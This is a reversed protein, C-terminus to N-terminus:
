ASSAQKDRESPLGPTGALSNTHSFVGQFCHGPNSHLNLLFRSCVPCLHFAPPRPSDAAAAASVAAVRWSGCGAGTCFLSDVPQLNLASASSTKVRPPEQSALSPKSVPLNRLGLLVWILLSSLGPLRVSRRPARVRTTRSSCTFFCALRRKRGIRLSTDLAAGGLATLSIIHSGLIIIM